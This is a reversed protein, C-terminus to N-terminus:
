NFEDIGLQRAIRNRAQVELQRVREKSIGMEGALQKLTRIECDGIGFRHRLVFLEREPLQDLCERLQGVMESRFVTEEQSEVSSDEVCQSLPRDWGEMPQDLSVSRPYSQLRTAAEHAECGLERAVEHSRPERGLRTALRSAVAHADKFQRSRYRPVRVLSATESLSRIIARRVWWIAYTLFKTNRSPDFRRVAELLGLVGEEILDEFPVGKNRYSQAIRVVSGMHTRVLSHIADSEGKRARRALARDASRTLPPVDRQRRSDGQIGGITIEM